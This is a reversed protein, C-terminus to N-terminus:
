CWQNTLIGNQFLTLKQGSTYLDRSKERLLRIRCKPDQNEDVWKTMRDLEEETPASESDVEDESNRIPWTSIHDFGIKRLNEVMSVFKDYIDINNKTLMVNARTLLDAEHIRSVVLDLSPYSKVRYTQANKELDLDHVTIYVTKLGLNKWSSLYDQCFQEDQGIRIGNSYLNIWDFYIDEKRMHYVLSLTNTVAKPSLTPEGSSSVSLSRAGQLYGDKLTQYTLNKDIIGDETPAYKRLRKGACHRCNANCDATGIIVAMSRVDKMRGNTNFDPNDEVNEKLAM